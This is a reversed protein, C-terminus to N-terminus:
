APRTASRALLVGWVSLAGALVFGPVSLWHPVSWTGIAIPWDYILRTLHAAAAVGFVFATIGFYATHRM